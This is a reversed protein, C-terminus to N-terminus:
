RLAHSLVNYRRSFLARLRPMTTAIAALLLLTPTMVVRDMSTDAHWIPDYPTGLYIGLLGATYIAAAGCLLVDQRRFGVCAGLVLYCALCHWVYSVHLWGNLVYGFRHTVEALDTARELARGLIDGPRLGTLPTIQMKLRAWLLYPALTLILLADRLILARRNRWAGYAILPALAGALLVAEQKICLCVGLAACGLMLMFRDRRHAWQALAYGAVASEMALWGDMYGSVAQDRIAVLGGLLLLVLGLASGRQLVAFGLIAAFALPIIGGKGVYENWGQTLLAAVRAGLLPILNPYGKQSWDYEGDAWFPSAHLGGDFFYVKAHFFWISRADWHELPIAFIAVSLLLLVITTAATVIAAHPSPTPVAARRNRVVLVLVVAFAALGFCALTEQAALSGLSVGAAHDVLLGLTLLLTVTPLVRHPAFHRSLDRFPVLALLPILGLGIATLLLWSVVAIM